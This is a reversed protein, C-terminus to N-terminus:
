MVFKGYTCFEVKVAINLPFDVRIFHFLSIQLALIVWMGSDGCVGTCRSDHIAVQVELQLTMSPVM